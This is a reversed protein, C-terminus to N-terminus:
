SSYISKGHYTYGANCLMNANFSEGWDIRSVYLYGSCSLWFCAATSVMM